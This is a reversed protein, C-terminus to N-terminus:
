RNENPLLRTLDEGLFRLRCSYYFILWRAQMRSLELHPPLSHRFGHWAYLWLIKVAIKTIVWLRNVSWRIFQAWTQKKSELADLLVFRLKIPEDFDVYVYWPHRLTGMSYRQGDFHLKYHPSHTYQPHCQRNILRPQYGPYATAYLIERGKYIIRNPIRYVHHKISPLNVITRIEQVAGPSVTEDSDIYFIWDYTAMAIARNVMSAWDEIPINPVNSDFQKEIRAGYARAIDLTGDTSNGDVVLIEAFDKVSELARGLTDACNLTFIRATARIKDHDQQLMVSYNLCTGLLSAM